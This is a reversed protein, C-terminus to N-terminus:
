SFYLNVSTKNLYYLRRTMLGNPIYAKISKKLEIGRIKMTPTLLGNDITWDEKMVVIKQIKAVSELTPNLVKITQELSEILAAQEKEKGTDSLVVLGIPQPIGTGVVCVQDIDSNKLMELEIPAPSIYKGKDTKFQDKIRGTIWLFGDHDYEGIDGTRLFGDETFVEHTM